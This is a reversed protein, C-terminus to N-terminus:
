VNDASVEHIERRLYFNRKDEYMREDMEQFFHFVSTHDFEATGISFSISPLTGRTANYIKLNRQISDLTDQVQEASAKELLIVFEDGGYRVVTHNRASHFLIKGVDRLVKDGEMHGLTDNIKKFDNIDMMIGTIRRDKGAQGAMHDMYHLLYGRNYLKTLPDVYAQESQLNINLFILGVAVSAWILSIGYCLMQIMSGVYIPALFMLVPIFLRRDTRRQYRYSQVAGWAMYAYVTVWPLFFWTTRYYVNDDDVWFFVPVFLNAVVMLGVVAAPAMALLCNMRTRRYNLHLKCNVYCVWLCALVIAMLLIIASCIVIAQRAGTFQRGDLVFGAIELFCLVLCIRCMWRYLIGDPSRDRLKRQRSYLLALLLCIGLGNAVYVAPLNIQSVSSDMAGLM